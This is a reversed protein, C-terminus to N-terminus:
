ESQVHLSITYTRPGQTNNGTCLYVGEDEMKVDNIQLTTGADLQDDYRGAPLTGVKKEWTVRPAPRYHPNDVILLKNNM